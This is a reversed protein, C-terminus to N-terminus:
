NSALDEIRYISGTKFDTFYLEGKGDQGFTSISYPTNLAMTQKWAGGVNQAYFLQGNCYDGYFYKGVLGPSRTGRYVYGGSISCRKEDHNYEFAPAVYHSADQCGQTNFEHMGEFCRWGYNESARSGAKQVDVEEIAGQGVDAIYLDGNARDFSIRWPNRLGYAWIEPKAGAQNAFPNGSPVTYPDGHDVDIRLIKGFLTNKDQARNQPDGASGGDGLAIYLFGDPGFQLDGGNHNTYPQKVTFLVKASDPLVQATGKSVQYRVVVTNQGKDIYNLYFYGNQGFSPHFVLGLLGMEGGDDFVQEHIDLFPQADLQGQANIVRIIGQRELVFLRPDNPDNTTVIATPKQLGTAVLAAGVKPEPQKKSATQSPKSAQRGGSIVAWSLLVALIIAGIGLIAILWKIRNGSISM